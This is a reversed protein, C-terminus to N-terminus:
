STKKFFIVRNPFRQNLRMSATASLRLPHSAVAPCAFHWALTAGLRNDECGSALQLWKDIKAEAEGSARTRRVAECAVVRSGGSTATANSARALGSRYQSAREREARVSPNAQPLDVWVAGAAVHQGASAGEVLGRPLPASFCALPMIGWGSPPRCQKEPSFHREFILLQDEAAMM